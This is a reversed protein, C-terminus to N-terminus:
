IWLSFYLFVQKNNIQFEVKFQTDIKDPLGVWTRSENKKKFESVGSNCIKKKPFSFTVTHNYGGRFTSPPFSSATIM